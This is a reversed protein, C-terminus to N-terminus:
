GTVGTYDRPEPRFGRGMYEMISQLAERDSRFGVIELRGDEHLTVTQEFFPSAYVTKTFTM